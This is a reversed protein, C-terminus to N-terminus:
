RRHLCRRLTDITSQFIRAENGQIIRTGRLM